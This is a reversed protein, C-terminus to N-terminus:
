PEAVGGAVESVAPPIAELFKADRFFMEVPYDTTYGYGGFVQVANDASRMAANRAHACLQMVKETSMEEIKDAAAYASVRNSVTDVSVEKLLRQVMGFSAIPAGFQYRAQAYTNAHQFCAHSIAVALSAFCLHLMRFVIEYDNGQLTTQVEIAGEDFAYDAIGACRFGLVDNKVIPSANRKGDMIFFQSGSGREAKVLLYDCFEGNVIFPATGSVKMAGGDEQEVTLSSDTLSLGAFSEGEAIKGISTQDILSGQLGSLAAGAINQAAVSLAISPSVGGLEEVVLLLSVLDMQAGGLSEPILIGCLGLESIKKLLATSPIKRKELDDLVPAIENKAFSAVEKRLLKHEEKLGMWDM